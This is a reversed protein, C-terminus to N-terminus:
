VRSEEDILADRELSRTDSNGREGNLRGFELADASLAAQAVLALSFLLKM